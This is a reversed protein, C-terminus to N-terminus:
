LTVLEVRVAMEPFHSNLTEAVRRTLWTPQTTFHFGDHPASLQPSVVAAVPRKLPLTLLVRPQSECLSLMTRDIPLVAPSVVHM